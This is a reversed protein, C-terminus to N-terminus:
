SSVEQIRPDWARQFTAMCEAGGGIMSNVNTVSLLLTDPFREYDTNMLTRITGEHSTFGAILVLTGTTLRKTNFLRWDRDTDFVLSLTLQSPGFGGVQTIFSSSGAFQRTNTLEPANWDPYVDERGQIIIDFHAFDNANDPDGFGIYPAYDSM